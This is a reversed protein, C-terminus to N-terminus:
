GDRYKALAAAVGPALDQKSTSTDAVDGAGIEALRMAEEEDATMDDFADDPVVEHIGRKQGKEASEDRPAEAVTSVPEAEALM